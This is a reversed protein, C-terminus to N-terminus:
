ISNVFDSNDWSHAANNKRALKRELYIMTTDIKKHRLSQSIRLIDAGQEASIIAFAHRFHHPTIPSERHKVFPIDAKNIIRTLYNSLYKYNYPKNKATTFLPSHDSLSVETSLGRRERFALISKMVNDHIKVEGEENGKGIVKLWFTGEDYILDSVRTGCLESVRIGTTTLVAILCYVIPHDKFYELLQKVESSNLDRNPLDRKHVNSSLLSEYLPNKIYGVNYLFKLFARLIVTKRAITTVSYPKSSKGLPVEILWEQYKRINRSNLEKLLSLTTVKQKNFDYLYGQLSFQKLFLLLERIYERKTNESRNKKKDTDKEKHVFLYVMELDNFMSYDNNSNLDILDIMESYLENNIMINTMKDVNELNMLNADNNESDAKM